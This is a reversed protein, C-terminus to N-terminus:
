RRGSRRRAVGLCTLMGALLAGTAPEPIDAHFQFDTIVLTGSLKGALTDTTLLFQFTEGPLLAPSLFSGSQIVGPGGQALMTLVPTTGGPGAYAFDAESTSLADGSNYAWNFQVTGGVALGGGLPGNYTIPDISSARAAPQTPGALVLEASSNTFYVSGLGAPSNTWFAAAFDGTFDTTTGAQVSSLGLLLALILAGRQGLVKVGTRGTTNGLLTQM